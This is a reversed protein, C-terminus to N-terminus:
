ESLEGGFKQWAIVEELRKFLDEVERRLCGYMGDILELGCAVLAIDNDSLTVHTMDNIDHPVRHVFAHYREAGVLSM